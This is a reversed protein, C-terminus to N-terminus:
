DTLSPNSPNSSERKPGWPRGARTCTSSTDLTTGYNRAAQNKLTCYWNGNKIGWTRRPHSFRGNAYTKQICAKQDRAQQIFTITNHKDKTTRSNSSSRVLLMPLLNQTFSRLYKSIIHKGEERELLMYLWKNRQIIWQPFGPPQLNLQVGSVCGGGCGGGESRSSKHRFLSSYVAVCQM